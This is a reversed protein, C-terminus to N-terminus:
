GIWRGPRSNASRRGSFGPQCGGPLRLGANVALKWSTRVKGGNVFSTESSGYRLNAPEGLYVSGLGILDRTIYAIDGQAAVDFASGSLPAEVEAVLVPGHPIPAAGQAPASLKPAFIHSQASSADVVMLGQNPNALVVIEDKIAIQRQGPVGQSFVTLAVSGSLKPDPPNSVDFVYLGATWDTLYALDGEISIGDAYPTTYGGVKRPAAPDLVDVIWLGEFGAAILAFHDKLAIGTSMQPLALEGVQRPQLPDSVDVSVLGGSMHVVYVMDGSVAVGAAPQKLTLSGLLVPQVPDSIDAIWIGLANDAIYLRDGDIALGMAWQFAELRSVEHPKLPNSIDLVRLNGKGAAVYLYPERLALGRVVGPLPESSGVLVPETQNELDAVLVRPGCGLFAYRGLLTVAYTNGGIQGLPQFRKNIGVGPTVTAQM